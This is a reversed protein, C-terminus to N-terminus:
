TNKLTQIFLRFRDGVGVQSLGEECTQEQEEGVAGCQGVDEPWVAMQEVFGGEFDKEFFGAVAIELNREWCGM